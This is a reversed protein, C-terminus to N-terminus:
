SSYYHAFCKPDEDDFDSFSLVYKRNTAGSLSRGWHTMVYTDAYGAETKLKDTFIYYQEETADSWKSVDNAVVVFEGDNLLKHLENIDFLKDSQKIIRTGSSLPQVATRFTCITNRTFM